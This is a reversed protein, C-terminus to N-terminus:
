IVMFGNMFNQCWLKSWSLETRKPLSCIVRLAAGIRGKPPIPRLLLHLIRCFGACNLMSIPCMVMQFYYEKSKRRHKTKEDECIFIDAIEAGLFMAWPHFIMVSAKVQNEIGDRRIVVLTAQCRHWSLSVIQRLVPSIHLNGHTEMFRPLGLDDMKFQINGFGYM